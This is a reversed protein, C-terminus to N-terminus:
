LITIKTVVVNDGNGLFVGGWWKQELAANLIEETLVLGFKGGNGALDYETFKGGETDNGFSCISAYTDGWHGEVIQLKWAEETPTFYFYVIQGVKAGAEILEAGADSLFYPQNTWEDVTAEGEWLTTELSVYHTTTVKDVIVNDGNLVFVGGWWKQTLAAALIEETVELRYYGNNAELDYETFKGGETDNGFSCIDAYAPGWHGELIELKWDDATPTIHFSIVDGVEVGADILEQGADSLLYPQNGWDDVVAVGTWLVTTVETNPTVSLDYEVEGNSSILKLKSSFGAKEPLGIYLVDGILIYQVDNGDVQVGTLVEGNVVTVQMLEGAKLEVDSGPMEPIFCFVPSDVSLEDFEVTEGNSMTITLKGTVATVPVTLVLKEESQEAFETVTLDEAFKVKAVTELNKGTITLESGASVPAPAYATLEPKATEIAVVATAGSKLNLTVEGSQADAPVTVTIATASQEDPVVTNSSGTFAVSSVVDLDKGSIVVQDGAKIGTSPTAVLETPITMGIYAIICEVGSAPWVAVTAQLPTNEPLTYTIAGNEVTYEVPMRDITLQEVLDIDNITQTIVDGPKKGTLDAISNVSPLVVKLADESYMENPMEAEEDTADTIAIRGTQAKAPVKVKITYRSHEIFNEEFVYVEDEFIVGHMLNLYDGNITLVEGPKVTTPSFSNLLIPETYTLESKTFLRGNATVLELIGPEVDEAPVTVRIEESNVIRIDTVEINTPFIVKTVQDMGSGVFRIEGGRIVPSPGFANLSIGGKYQNTSLDDGENCATFGALTLSAMLIYFLNKM